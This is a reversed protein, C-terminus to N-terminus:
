KEKNKIYVYLWGLLVGVVTVLTIVLLKAQQTM